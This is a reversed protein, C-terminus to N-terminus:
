GIATARTWRAWSAFRDDSADRRARRDGARHSIANVAMGYVAVETGACGDL